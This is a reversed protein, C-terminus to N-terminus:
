ETCTSHQACASVFVHVLQERWLGDFCDQLNIQINIQNNTAKFFIKKKKNTIHKRDRDHFHFANQAVYTNRSQQHHQKFQATIKKVSNLKCGHSDKM